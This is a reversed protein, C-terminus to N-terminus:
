EGQRFWIDGNVRYWLFAKDHGVVLILKMLLIFNFKNCVQTAVPSSCAINIAAQLPHKTLLFHQYQPPPLSSLCRQLQVSMCPVSLWGLAM